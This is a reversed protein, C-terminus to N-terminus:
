FRRLSIDRDWGPAERSVENSRSSVIFARGESSSFRGGSSQTASAAVSGAHCADIFCIVESAETDTLAKVLDGYSLTRLDSTLLCGDGGHGSFYFVIRDGKGARNCIARLKELINARNAYKSTLISVDKTQTLMLDRFAKADKATQMLNAEENAYQSVGVVLAYTRAETRTVFGLLLAIILLTAKKM